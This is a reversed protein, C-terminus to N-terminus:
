GEMEESLDEGKERERKGLILRRGVGERRGFAEKGAGEKLLSEKKGGGGRRMTQNGKGVDERERKGVKEGM